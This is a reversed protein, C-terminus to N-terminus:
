LFLLPISDAVLLGRTTPILRGKAIVALNSKLLYSINKDVRKYANLVNLSIGEGTRFSLLLEELLFKEQTIKEMGEVPGFGKEVATCYKKLDRINWQRTNNFFSHASPGLGLYPVHRWYNRNHTSFFKRGMAFSSVEYHLYERSKLVEATKLFFAEEQLEDSFMERKKQRLEWFPTKEKVTLQYCSIHAPKFCVAEQLTETWNEMSQGPVAYMLDISLNEFGKERILGIAKKAEYATHRRKLFMLVAKNFSQVGLSIRNFGLMSLLGPMGPSIDGPNVEITKEANPTFAFNLYLIKTLREINHEGIVSPTGGGLYLTGFSDFRGRYLAAEKELANLWEPVPHLADTSYFDCYPCKKACFPIHVYLGPSTLPEEPNNKEPSM